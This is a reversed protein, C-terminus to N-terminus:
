PGLDRLVLSGDDEAVVLRRGPGDLAIRPRHSPSPVIALVRGSATELIRVLTTPPMEASYLARIEEVEAGAPSVVAFRGGDGSFAVSGLGGSGFTRGIVPMLTARDLIEVRGSVLALHRGGPVLDFRGVRRGRSVPFAVRDGAGTLVDVTAIAAEGTEPMRTPILLHRGGEDLCAGGLRLGPVEVEALVTGKEPSFRAIRSRAPDVLLIEGDGRWFVDAEAYGAPLRTRAAIEGTGAEVVVAPRGGPWESGEAVGLIREGVLPERGAPGFGEPFEYSEVAELSAADRVLVM